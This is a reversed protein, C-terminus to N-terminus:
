IKTQIFDNWEAFFLDFAGEDAIDTLLEDLSGTAVLNYKLRIAAIFSDLLIHDESLYTKDSRDQLNKALMFGRIFAMLQFVCDDQLFKEPNNEITKILQTLNM